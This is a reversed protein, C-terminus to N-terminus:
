KESKDDTKLDGEKSNQNKVKSRQLMAEDDLNPLLKGDKIIYSGPLPNSFDVKLEPKTNLRENMM